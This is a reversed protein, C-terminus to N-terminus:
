RTSTGVTAHPVTHVPPGGHRKEFVAARISPAGIGPISVSSSRSSTSRALAPSCHDRCQGANPDDFDRFADRTRQERPQETVGVGVHDLDLRRFTVSRATPNGFAVAQARREGREVAVLPRDRHTRVAIGRRHDGLEGRPGVHEDDILLERLPPGDVNGPDHRRVDIEHDAHDGPPAGLARPGVPDATLERGLEHRLRRCRESARAAFGNPHAGVVRTNRAREVRALGHGGRQEDGLVATALADVHRQEAREHV